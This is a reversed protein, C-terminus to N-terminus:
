NSSVKKLVIQESQKSVLLAYFEKLEAFKNQPYFSEKIQWTHVIQLKNGNVQAVYRLNATKDSTILHVSKPLEDVTYGEPITLSLMYSNKMPVIFEIPLKREEQKLPNEDIKGSFIPNIYIIDGMVEIGEEMELEIKAIVPKSIDDPADIEINEISWDEHNDKFSTIYRDEGVQNIKKRINLASYGDNKNVFNGKMTGDEGLTMTFMSSKVIGKKPNLNVWGPNTSSIVYGRQNLCRFPLLGFPLHKETADLLISKGDITARAIMYNYKSLIPYVPHVLGNDITSIIVPDADIEVARLMSILLANIDASSGTREEYSKKINKSPTYREKENWKMHQSVFSYVAAARVIPDQHESTIQSTIDKYFSRKRMNPGFDENNVLFNTIVADWNSLIDHNEKSLTKYNSLQFDISLLYNRYNGVFNEDKLAPVDKAIWHFVDDRYDIKNYSTSGKQNRGLKNVARQTNSWSISKLVDNTEFIHFSEFGQSNKLYTLYEPISVIYESWKVPISKQFYWSNLITLYNSNITYSFEIVSGEKVNPLTFKTRKYNKSTKEKFIGDKGLKTKVVKGNEITYTYGKIQSISQEIKNDDYLSVQETAWKYGDDNFIKIRCIRKLNNEWQGENVNYTFSLVGYDCLVVADADPNAEYVTMEVEEKSVNGLKIPPKEAFSLSSILLLIFLTLPKPITKM